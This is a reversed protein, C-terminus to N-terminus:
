GNGNEGGKIEARIILDQTFPDEWWTVRDYKLHDGSAIDYHPIRMQGGVNSCCLRLMNFYDSCLAKAADREAEAQKLAAELQRVKSTELKEAFHDFSACANDRERQAQELVSKTITHRYTEECLQDNLNTNYDNLRALEATLRDLEVHLEAVRARLGTNEVAPASSGTLM